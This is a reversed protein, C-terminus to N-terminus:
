ISCIKHKKTSYVIYQLSLAFKKPSDGRLVSLIKIKQYIIGKVWPLTLTIELHCRWKLQTIKRYMRLRNGRM